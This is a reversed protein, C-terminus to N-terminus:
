QKGETIEIESNSALFYRGKLPGETMTVHPSKCEPDLMEDYEIKIRVGKHIVIVNECVGLTTNTAM